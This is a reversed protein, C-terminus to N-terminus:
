GGFVLTCGTCHVPLCVDGLISSWFTEGFDVCWIIPWFHQLSMCLTCTHISQHLYVCLAMGKVQAYCLWQHYKGHWERSQVQNLAILHILMIMLLLRIWPLENKLERLAKLPVTSKLSSLKRKFLFITFCCLGVLVPEKALVAPVWGLGLGGGRFLHWCRWIWGSNQTLETRGGWGAFALGLECPCWSSGPVEPVPLGRELPIWSGGLIIPHGQSLCLVLAAVPIHKWAACGMLTWGSAARSQTCQLAAGRDIFHKRSFHFTVLTGSISGKSKFNFLTTLPSPPSPSYFLVENRVEGKTGSKM